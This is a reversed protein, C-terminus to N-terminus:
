LENWFAAAMYGVVRDRDGTVDGSNAYKLVKSMNAGLKKSLLMATIIPGAGCAECSRNQINNGLSEIDFSNVMDLIVNDLQMAEDYSHFHSLDSSAVILVPNDHILEWLIDALWACTSPKQNGMVLPVLKFGPMVVQIFPLQIELSHERSHADSIYKINEDKQKLASIFSYDLPVIGLPTMYGGRDYVSVGEFRVHHSPALVIVTKFPNKYLLKYAHAAIHGSYMYGAHPSILSILKGTINFDPASQLYGLIHEHLQKADGPYWSGAIVSERIEKDHM